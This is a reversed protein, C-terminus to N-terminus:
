GRRMCDSLNKCDSLLNLRCFKVSKDGSSVRRYFVGSFHHGVMSEKLASEMDQLDKQKDGPRDNAVQKSGLNLVPFFAGKTADKEAKLAALKNNSDELERITSELEM